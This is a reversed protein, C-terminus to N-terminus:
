YLRLVLEGGKYCSIATGATPRLPKRLHDRSPFMDIRGSSTPPLLLDAAVFNPIADFKAERGAYGTRM